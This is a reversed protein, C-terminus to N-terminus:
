RTPNASYLNERTQTPHKPHSSNCIRTGQICSTGLPSTEEQCTELAAYKRPVNERYWENLQSREEQFREFAVQLEKLSSRASPKGTPHKLDQWQLDKLPSGEEQFLRLVLSSSAVAYRPTLRSFSNCVPSHTVRM